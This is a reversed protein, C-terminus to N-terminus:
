DNNGDRRRKIFRVVDGITQIKEVEGEPIQIDFEEELEMVLEVTDLSDLDAFRTNVSLGGESATEIVDRFKTIISEVILTSEWLLCGCNPCPADGTPESFELDTDAGCM